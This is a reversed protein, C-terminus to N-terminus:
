EKTTRLARKGRSVRAVRFIFSILRRSVGRRGERGPSAVEPRIKRWTEEQRRLKAEREEAQEQNVPSKKARSGRGMGTERTESVNIKKLRCRDPLM